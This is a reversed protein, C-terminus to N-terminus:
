NARLNLGNIIRGIIYNIREKKEDKEIENLWHNGCKENWLRESEMFKATATRGQGLLTLDLGELLGSKAWNNELEKAENLFRKVLKTNDM